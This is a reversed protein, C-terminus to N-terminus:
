IIIIISFIEEFSFNRCYEKETDRHYLKTM